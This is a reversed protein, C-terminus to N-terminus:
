VKYGWNRLQQVRGYVTTEKKELAFSMNKIGDIKYFQILYLDDEWTWPEYQKAHFEPNYELRGRSDYKLHTMTRIIM